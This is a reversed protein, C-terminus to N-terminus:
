GQGAVTKRVDITVGELNCLTFGCTWGLHILCTIADMAAWGQRVQGPTRIGPDSLMIGDVSGPDPSYALAQELGATVCPAADPTSTASAGPSGCATLAVVLIGTTSVGFILKGM